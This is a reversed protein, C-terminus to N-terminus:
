GRKAKPRLLRVLGATNRRQVQGILPETAPKRGDFNAAHKATFTLVERLM